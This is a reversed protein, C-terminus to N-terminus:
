ARWYSAPAFQSYIRTLYTNRRELEDHQRRLLDSPSPSSAISSAEQEVLVSALKKNNRQRVYFYAVVVLSSALSALTVFIGFMFKVTSFCVTPPRMPSIHRQTSPRQPKHQQQQQKTQETTTSHSAFLDEDHHADNNDDLLSFTLDDPSVVQITKQTKIDTSQPQRSNRHDGAGLTIERRYRHNTAITVLQHQVGRPAALLSIPYGTLPEQHTSMLVSASSNLAPSEPALEGMRNTAYAPRVVHSVLSSGAAVPPYPSSYHMHSGAGGPAVSASSRMPMTAPASMLTPKGMMHQQRSQVNNLKGGYAQMPQNNNNNYMQPQYHHQQTHQQHQQHHHHHHHHPAYSPSAAALHLLHPPLPGSSARTHQQQQTGAAPGAMMSTDLKVALKGQSEDLKLQVSSQPGSTLEAGSANHMYALPSHTSMHVPPPPMVEKQSVIETGSAAYDGGASMPQGSGAGTPGGLADGNANGGGGSLHPGSAGAHCAPEPCEYRCVQIVCQFHVSMSDPFKFAQFHAYSVVTAAPGFNRVKQFKAMIKPRAVCGYEDVLQIPQHQQNGDHAICNRVLMDFRNEDDKIALVMTMTQGIKVIGAVESSWPGKGVQIQMWCQINDGLFNATVADLMDVNYPKFTVSKEYYDYWTCRLKRAQDYIEQVQADYQIIITNEIFLGNPQAANHAGGGGNGGGNQHMLAAGADSSSMGCKGLHIDFNVSTQGSNAPLHVCKKDDAHAHARAHSYVGLPLQRVAILNQRYTRQCRFLIARINTLAHTDRSGGVSAICHQSSSRSTKAHSRPRATAEYSMIWYSWLPMCVRARVCLRM